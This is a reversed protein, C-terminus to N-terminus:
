ARAETLGARWARPGQLSEVTLSRDIWGTLNKLQSGFGCELFATGFRQLGAVALPWNVASAASVICEEWAEFGDEICRGDLPSILPFVPDLPAWRELRAKIHPLLPAMHDCHLPLRVPLLGCKLCKPEVAAVFASLGPRPGSLTFQAKGNINSLLLEPYGRLVERVEEGSMGIVFAMGMDDHQFRAESCDEIANFLAMAAELPVVGAAVSASFFGMSHGSAAAPLPMGAVSHARYLAVSHALVAPPAHRQAKLVEEPGEAMWARLPYGTCAEAAAMTENWVQNDTWPASMGVCETAQGPFLLIPAM